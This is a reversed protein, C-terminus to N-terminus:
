ASHISSASSRSAISRCGRRWKSLARSCTSAMSGATRGVTHGAPFRAAREEVKPDGGRATGRRRDGGAVGTCCEGRREDAGLHADASRSGHDATGRRGRPRSRRRCRARRLRPVRRRRQEARHGQTDATRSHVEGGSRDASDQRRRGADDGLRRRGAQDDVHHPLHHGEADAEEVRPGDSGAGRLARHPRQAGGADGRRQVDERRDAAADARDGAQAPGDLARSGRTSRHADGRGVSPRCGGRCPALSYTECQRRLAVFFM